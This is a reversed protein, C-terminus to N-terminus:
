GPRLTEILSAIGGLVVAAGTWLAARRNLDSTKRTALMIAKMLAWHFELENADDDLESYKPEFPIKSAQYWHWAAILGIILSVASLGIAAFKMTFSM